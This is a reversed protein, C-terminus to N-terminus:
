KREAYKAWTETTGYFNSTDYPTSTYQWLAKFKWPDVAPAKKSYKAVWLGYNGPAVKAGVGQRYAESVYLLPRVGTMTYVYDLWDRAWQPNTKLAGGEWDLALVARGLYPRVTKLFNLAEAEATNGREPRAYHYFGLLKNHSVVREADQKNYPNIYSTGETAKIIAGDCTGIATIREAGTNNSSLDCIKLM